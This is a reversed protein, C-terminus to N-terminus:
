RPKGSDLTLIERERESKSLTKRNETEQIRSWNKARHELSSNKRAQKRVGTRHLSLIWGRGGWFYSHTFGVGDGMIELPDLPLNSSNQLEFHATSCIHDIQTAKQAGNGFFKAARSFLFCDIQTAKIRWNCLKESCPQVSVTLKLQKTRWNCLKKSRPQVFVTL